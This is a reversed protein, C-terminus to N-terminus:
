TLWQVFLYVSVIATVVSVCQWYIQMAIWVSNKPFFRSAWLTHEPNRHQHAFQELFWYIQEGISRVTWFVFFVLLFLIFDQMLLTFISVLFFFVGFIVADVWVFAGLPNFWFSLGYPNNRKKIRLFGFIAALFGYGGWLLVLVTQLNNM